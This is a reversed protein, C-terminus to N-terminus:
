SWYVYLMPRLDRWVDPGNLLNLWSIVYRVDPPVAPAIYQHAQEASDFGLNRALHDAAKRRTENKAQDDDMSALLRDIMRKATSDLRRGDRSDMYLGEFPYIGHPMEVVRGWEDSHLANEEAQDLPDGYRTWHSFGPPQVLLLDRRGSESERTVPWPAHGNRQVDAKIMEITMMLEFWADSNEPEAARLADLYELYDPAIDDMHRYLADANVRPDTLRGTKQDHELGTLGWGMKKYLRIGM